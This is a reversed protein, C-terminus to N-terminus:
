LGVRFDRSRATTSRRQREHRHGEDPRALRGAATHWLLRVDTVGRGALTDSMPLHSPTTPGVLEAIATNVATGITGSSSDVHELVPSLRELFTVASDAALVPQGRPAKQIGAVPQRIRAIALQSSWGFAHRRFQAKFEWRHAATKAM